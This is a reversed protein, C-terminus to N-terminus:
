IVRSVVTERRSMRAISPDSGRAQDEVEAEPPAAAEDEDSSEYDDSKKPRLRPIFRPKRGKPNPRPPPTAEDEGHGDNKNPRRLSIWGFRRERTKRVQGEGGGGGVEGGGADGVGDGGGGEGGGEGSGGEGGGDGGGAGAARQAYDHGRSSPMGSESSTEDDETENGRGREEDAEFETEMGRGRTEQEERRRSPYERPRQRRPHGQPRKPRNVDEEQRSSRESLLSPERSTNQRRACCWSPCLDLVKEKITSRDWYFDRTAPAIWRGEKNFAASVWPRGQNLQWSRLARRKDELMDMLEMRRFELVRDQQKHISMPWHKSTAETLGVEMQALRAMRAQLQREEDQYRKLRGLAQPTYEGDLSGGRLEYKATGTSTSVLIYSHQPLPTAPLAELLDDLAVRDNEENEALESLARSLRSNKKLELGPGGTPKDVRVFAPKEPANERGIPLVVLQDTADRTPAKERLLAHAMRAVGCAHLCLRMLAPYTEGADSEGADDLSLSRCRSANEILCTSGEDVVV